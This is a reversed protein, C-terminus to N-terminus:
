CNGIRKCHSRYESSEKDEDFDADHYKHRQYESLRVPRRSERERSSPRRQPRGKSREQHSMRSPRRKPRKSSYMVKTSEPRPQYDDDDDIDHDLDYEERHPRSHHFVPRVQPVAVPYPKAVPVPVHYPNLAHVNQAESAEYDYSPTDRYKSKIYNERWKEVAKKFSDEPDENGSYQFTPLYSPHSTDHNRLGLLDEKTQQGADGTAFPEGNLPQSSSSFDNDPASPFAPAYLKESTEKYKNLHSTLDPSTPVFGDYSGVDNFGFTSYTLVSPQPAPNEEDKPQQDTKKQRRGDTADLVISLAVLVFVVRSYM